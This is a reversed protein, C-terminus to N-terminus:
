SIEIKKVLEEKTIKPIEINLVGDTYAARINESDLENSLFFKRTFSAYRFERRRYNEKEQHDDEQKEVQVILHDDKIEIKFDEKKLGPAALEIAFNADTEKINVSPQSFPTRADDFWNKLSHDNYDNFFSSMTRTPNFPHYKILKM